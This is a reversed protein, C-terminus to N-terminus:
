AEPDRDEPPAGGDQDQRGSGKRLRSDGYHRAVNRHVIGRGRQRPPRSAKRPGGLDPTGDRGLSNGGDPAADLLLERTRIAAGSALRRGSRAM